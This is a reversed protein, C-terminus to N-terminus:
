LTEIKLLKKKLKKCNSPQPNLMSPNITEPSLIKSNCHCPNPLGFVMLDCM